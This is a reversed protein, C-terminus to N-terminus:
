FTHEHDIDDENPDTNKKRWDFYLQVWNLLELLFYYIVGFVTIYYQLFTPLIFYFIFAIVFFIWQIINANYVILMAKLKRFFPNSKERMAYLQYLDLLEFLQRSLCTFIFLTGVFYYYEWAYFYCMIALTLHPFLYFIPVWLFDVTLWNYLASFWILFSLMLATRPGIMFCIYITFLKPAFYMDGEDHVLLGAEKLYKDIYVLMKKVHFRNMLQPETLELLEKQTLKTFLLGDISAEKFNKEYYKPLKLRETIFYRVEENTWDVIDKNKWFGKTLGFGEQQYSYSIVFLLFLLVSFTKIGFFKM